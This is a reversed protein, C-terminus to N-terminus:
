IFVLCLCVFVFVSYTHRHLTCISTYLVPLSIVCLFQIPLSQSFLENMRIFQDKIEEKRRRKQLLLTFFSSSAYSIHSIPFIYSDLLWNNYLVCTPHMRWASFEWAWKMSWYKLRRYVSKYICIYTWISTYIKSSAFIGNLNINKWRGYACIRHRRSKACVM